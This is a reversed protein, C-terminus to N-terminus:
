SGAVANAPVVHSSSFTAMIEGVSVHPFDDPQVFEDAFWPMSKRNFVHKLFQIAIRGSQKALAEKRYCLWFPTSFHLGVDLAEFGAEFLLGYTPLLAIGAGKRV